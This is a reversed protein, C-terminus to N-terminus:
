TKKYITVIHLQTDTKGGAGKVTLNVNYMKKDYKPDEKYTHTVSPCPPPCDQTQGDGFDWHYTTAGVSMNTFKVTYGSIEPKFSADLMQGNTM